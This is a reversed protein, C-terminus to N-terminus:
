RPVLYYLSRVSDEITFRNKISFESSLVETFRDETYNPFIDLGGPFLKSVQPDSKPVFEILVPCNWSKFYKVLYGFPLAGSVALHHILALALVLNPKVREQLPPREKSEWGVGTCPNTLDILLPLLDPYKVKDEYTSEVCGHSSDVSVVKFNYRSALRSFNGTNSGL